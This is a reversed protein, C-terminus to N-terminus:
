FISTAGRVPLTSQFKTGEIFLLDGPRTAGRVPLTSQFKAMKEETEEPDHREGCPSRPNFHHRGPVGGAVPVRTAGRVPLTSQFLRFEGLFGIYVPTAGRVPLTSQFKPPPPTTTHRTTAGRVPLTSQFLRQM